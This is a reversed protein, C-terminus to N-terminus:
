ALAAAITPDSLFARLEATAYHPTPLTVADFGLNAHQVTAGHVTATLERGVGVLDVDPLTINGVRVMLDAVVTGDAAVGHIALGVPTEAVDFRAIGLEANGSESEGSCGVGCLVSVAVFSVFTRIM